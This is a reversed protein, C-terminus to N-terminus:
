EVRILEITADSIYTTNSESWYRLTITNAGSLSHYSIDTLPYVSNRDQPEIQITKISYDTGNIFVGFRMDNSTSSHRGRWNATIKYTGAPLNTTNLTVKIQPSTSSTSTQSLSEAYQFESGYIQNVVIKGTTSNKESASVINGQIDLDPYRGIVTGENQLGISIDPVYISVNATDGSKSASINNGIFNFTNVPDGISTGEDEVSISVDITPITINATDGSKVANIGSGIFNFTNVPDGISTGEDEVNISVDVVGAGGPINIDITSSDQNLTVGDGIFNLNNYQGDFISDDFIGITSGSGPIGQDGQLGRPGISGEPGMPGISGEPGPIGQSGDIGDIGDSGPTGPQGKINTVTLSCGNIPWVLTSTGTSRTGRGKIKTNASVDIVAIVTDGGKGEATNRSYIYGTTGPITNYGSGTDIQLEHSEDTRGGGATQDITVRMMVLYKGDKNFQLEANGSILSYDDLEHIRTGDWQIDSYTGTTTSLAQESSNYFDAFSVPGVLNPISSLYANEYSVVSGDIVRFLDGNSLYTNIEDSLYAQDFNGLDIEISSPIILGFEKIEVDNTSINKVIFIERAM